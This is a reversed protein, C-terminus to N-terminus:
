MSLAKNEKSKVCERTFPTNGSAAIALVDEKSFKIENAIEHPSNIDDEAGEISSVSSKEVQLLLYSKKAMWFYPIIGGDQM